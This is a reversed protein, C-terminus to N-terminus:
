HQRAKQFFVVAVLLLLANGMWVSWTADLQGTKSLNQTMMSVPYYLVLIPVFCFLFSTLFQKKGMVMAFPSGLLVFFFCSCATAFRNHYETRLRGIKDKAEKAHHKHQAFEPQAFRDLQGTAFLLTTELLQRQGAEELEREAQALANEIERLRLNRPKLRQHRLPLPFPREEVGPFRLRTGDPLSMHGDRMKLVVEQRQLDFDLEAERAQLVTSSKGKPSYRFTPHILKGDRVDMVTITIGREKIYVQNQTQLLDLFIDEMFLTVMREINGYSWPIVQDMLLLVGVSLVGSLFLSPWVLTSMPVGAAKAAIVERDGSLRGYVVCVTLLLTAPVTYPLLSPIVFPLIQIVHWSGLGHERMEGFGGVFVLLCTTLTVLVAFVRLLEGFVYRELLRM